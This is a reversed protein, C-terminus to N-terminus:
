TRVRWEKLWSLTMYKFTRMHGIVYCARLFCIQFPGATNCRLARAYNEPARGGGRGEGAVRYGLELINSSELQKKPQKSAM